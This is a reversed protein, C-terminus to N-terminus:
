IQQLKSFFNKPFNKALTGRRVPRHNVGVSNLFLNEGNYKYKVNVNGRFRILTLKYDFLFAANMWIVKNPTIKHCVVNGQVINLRM